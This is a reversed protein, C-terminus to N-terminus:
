KIKKDKKKGNKKRDVCYTIRYVLYSFITS